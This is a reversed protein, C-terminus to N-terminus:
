YNRLNQKYSFLYRGSGSFSVHLFGPSSYFFWAFVRCHSPRIGLWIRNWDVWGFSRFQEHNRRLIAGADNSIWFFLVHGSLERFISSQFVIRKPARSRKLPFTTNPCLVGLTISRPHIMMNWCAHNGHLLAWLAYLGPVWIVRTKISCPRRKSPEVGFVFSSCAGPNCRYTGTWQKVVVKPPFGELRASSVRRISIEHQRWSDEVAFYQNYTYIHIDDLYKFLFDVTVMGLLSM